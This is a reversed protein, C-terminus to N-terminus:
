HPAESDFEDTDIDTGVEGEKESDPSFPDEDPPEIAIVEFRTIRNFENGDDDRRLAVKARVIIGGPLPGELQDLSAIGLKSLDRKAMPLAAESLWIDLWLKRGAYEGSRVSLSLKYGLTKNRSESLEGRDIICEYEGAPIPLRDTAAATTKWLNELRNRESNMLIDALRRRGSNPTSM